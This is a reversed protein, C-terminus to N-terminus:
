PRVEDRAERFPRVEKVIVAGNRIVLNTEGAQTRRRKEVRLQYAKERQAKTLDPSIYTTNWGAIKKMNKAKELVKKQMKPNTLKVLLKRPSDDPLGERRAPIRICEEIEVENAEIKTFLKEVVTRM